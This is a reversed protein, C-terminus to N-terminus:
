AAFYGFVLVGIAVDISLGFPRDLFLVEVLLVMLAVVFYLGFDFAYTILRRRAYPRLTALRPSALYDVLAAIGFLVGLQLALPIFRAQGSYVSYILEHGLVLGMCLAFYAYTQFKEPQRM